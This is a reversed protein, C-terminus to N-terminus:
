EGPLPAEKAREPKYINTTVFSVRASVQPLVQIM